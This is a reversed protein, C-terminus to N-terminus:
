GACSKLVALAAAAEKEFDQRINAELSVTGNYGIRTLHAFLAGYDEEDGAAPLSRGLTRAVHVHKLLSGGDLISTMPESALNMHYTDLLAGISEDNLRRALACSESFRNVVNSEQKNLHEIAIVLGFKKAMIALKLLLSALQDLALELPTNLPRNRAGSSGFVIVKAGLRQARDMANQAYALAGKHDAVSGTLRFSGPFFNNMALCPMECRHLVELPGDRFAAEGLSMVQALPLEVYDFGLKKLVPIRDAGIGSVDQAGMSICYGFQM